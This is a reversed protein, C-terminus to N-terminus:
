KADATEGDVDKWGKITATIDAGVPTGLDITIKRTTTMDENFDSMAESLDVSVILIDPRDTFRVEIDISQETGIIGLIRANATLRSGDRTFALLTCTANGTVKQESLSFEGAIGTLIGSTSAILGADGESVILEIQLDRNRQVMPLTVNVTDDQVIDAEHQATFLYGPMSEIGPEIENVKIIGNTLTAKACSKRAMAYNLRAQNQEDPKILLTMKGCDNWANFTHRGPTIPTPYCEAKQSPMTCPTEEGCCIHQLSYEAPIEASTSRNSFDAKFLIAGKTPHQTNFLDDKVCSVLALAAIAM